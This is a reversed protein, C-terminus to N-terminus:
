WNVSEELTFPLSQTGARTEDDDNFFHNWILDRSPWSEPHGTARAWKAAPAGGEGPGAEEGPAAEEAARKTGSSSGRLQQLAEAVPGTWDSATVFDDHKQQNSDTRWINAYHKYELGQRAPLTTLIDVATLRKREAVANPITPHLFGAAAAVMTMVPVSSGCDCRWTRKDGTGRPQVTLGGKYVGGKKTHVEGAFTRLHKPGEPDEQDIQIAVRPTRGRSDVRWVLCGDSQVAAALSLAVPAVLDALERAARAFDAVDGQVAAHVALAVGAGRAEVFGELRALDVPDVPDVPDGTRIREVARHVGAFVEMQYLLHVRNFSRLGGFGLPTSFTRRLADIVSDEGGVGGDVEVTLYGERM